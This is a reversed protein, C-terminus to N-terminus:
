GHLNNSTLRALVQNPPGESLNSLITNTPVDIDRQNSWMSITIVSWQNLTASHVRNLNSVLNPLKRRM